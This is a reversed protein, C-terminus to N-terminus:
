PTTTSIAAGAVTLNEGRIVGNVVTINDGQLVGGTIVIEDGASPGGNVIVGLLTPNSDPSAPTSDAQHRLTAIERGAADYFFDVWVIATTTPGTVVKQM